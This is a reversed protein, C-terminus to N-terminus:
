AANTRPPNNGRSSLFLCTIAAAASAIAVVIWSTHFAGVVDGAAGDLIVILIAVGLVTGVQRAMTVVASGTAFRRPPLSRSATTLLMPLALAFGIGGAILGPLMDAAYARDAGVRLAWFANAIGFLLTGAIAVRTAGWRRALRPGLVAVFPVALPGPSIALGTRISSYHWVGTMFEVLSLLMASFALNFLLAAITAVSFSRVRVLAPEVIPSPHRASRWAFGAILVVAGALSGIVRASTWGWDPGEVIGLALAAIGGTLLLAGALDPRRGDTEDRHERLVRLALVGALAGVPLNVLFVWRWSLEVLVGGIVPGAAAAMGGVATWM